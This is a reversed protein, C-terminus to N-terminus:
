QAIHHRPDKLLIASCVHQQTLQSVLARRQLDARQWHAILAPCRRLSIPHAYSSATVELVCSHPVRNELLGVFTWFADEERAPGLVALLFAAICAMGRPVGADFRTYLV